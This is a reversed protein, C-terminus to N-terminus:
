SPLIVFQSLILDSLSKGHRDLRRSCTVGGDLVDKVVVNFAEVGQVEYVDVLAEMISEQRKTAISEHSVNLGCNNPVLDKNLGYSIPFLHKMVQVVWSPTIINRLRAVDSPCHPIISVNLQNGKDGTRGHAVKYLPLEVGAPAPAPPNKPMVVPKQLKKEDAIVPLLPSAPCPQQLEQSSRCVSTEWQVLERPILSKHLLLDHNLGTRVGGGGAPGNTYLAEFEHIFTSAHARTEFLGDMRLRVEYPNSSARASEDGSCVGLSDEGVHYSLIRHSIDPNTEEVWARVLFEAAAAREKCLSGGFSIEGWGKWGCHKPILQLLDRPASQTAPRAGKAVVQDASLPQFTVNNFNVIVDPTIYATPDGIEYLLQQACTAISLEGGSNEAKGLTVSGDWTVDAYPLSVDLLQQASFSRHPDAPHMFYGGTLQCGCELLHGALAGQALYEFDQWKWDLEYVMPALFLAADAVRSTIIVDAKSTKLVHVIPAAGLYTSCGQALSLFRM